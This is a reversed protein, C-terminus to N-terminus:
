DYSIKKIISVVKSLMVSEIEKEVVERPTEKFYKIINQRWV